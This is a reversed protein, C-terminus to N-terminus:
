ATSADTTDAQEQKMLTERARAHHHAKIQGSLAAFAATLVTADDTFGLAAIFDPILDAPLVFYALAATLIAKTRAPTAPDRTCYYAAVADEVLPVRGALRRAKPWFGREVRRQNAALARPDVLARGPGLARRADAGLQETDDPGPADKGM